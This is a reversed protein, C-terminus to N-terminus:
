AGRQPGSARAYRTTAYDPHLDHVIVAPRMTSCNSTCSSTASSRRYAEFHDLDGLHHSVFAQEGAGLAFTGKLQGGVALVRGRVDCAALSDAAPCLRALPPDAIGRRRGGADGFRRLARPDASQADPFCRRDGGATCVADDDQYAIPEDSRNGSTMVLPMGGLADLLLHHLPTYPLMVGLEPNGPAVAHAFARGRVTAAASAAARDAAPAVRLLAQEAQSIWCLQRAAAVDAVMIALPKEERQKRRRLEAVAAANSADCVLHFGGLGKMAGIQGGAIAEAFEALPDAAELRSARRASCHWATPRM